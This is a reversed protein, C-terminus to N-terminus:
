SRPRVGLDLLRLLEQILDDSPPFPYDGMALLLSVLGHTAMWILSWVIAPDRREYRGADMAAQIEESMAALGTARLLQGQGYREPIDAAQGMFLVRYHEPHSLGFQIFALGRQRVRAEIDDVKVMMAEMAADVGLFKRAAVEYVLDQRSVFHQYISPTTVGTAEAVQRITITGFEGREEVLAETALLITERLEGGRGKPLRRRQGMGAGPDEMDVLQAV